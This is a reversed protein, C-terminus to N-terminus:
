SDKKSYANYIEIATKAVINGMTTKQKPNDKKEEEKKQEGEKGKTAEEEEDDYPIEQIKPHEKSKKSEDNYAKKMINFMKDTYDDIRTLCLNINKEVYKKM